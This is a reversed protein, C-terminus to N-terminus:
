LIAMYNQILFSLIYNASVETSIPDKRGLCIRRPLISKLSSSLPPGSLPNGCDPNAVQERNGLYDFPLFLFPTTVNQRLVSLSKRKTVSRLVSPSLPFPKNLHFFPSYISLPFQNPLFSLRLSLHFFASFLFLFTIINQQSLPFTAVILFLLGKEAKSQMM